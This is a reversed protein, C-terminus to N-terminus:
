KRKEIIKKMKDTFKNALEKYSDYEQGTFDNKEKHIIKKSVKYLEEAIDAYEDEVYGPTVLKERIMEAIHSPSTPIEGISMLAAHASDIMAWYLDIIAMEMRAKSRELSAPALSYYTWVSEQSPRIRGAYLLTKLPSFFGKDILPIGDRLINVAVPDGARVYEWFSTWSMTQIHLKDPAINSVTKALIIRYTQVIEKTLQLAVDDIIILIDIDASKTNTRAVSGFLILGSIFDGLERYIAKSFKKAITINSKPYADFRKDNIKKGRFFSNKMIKFKM